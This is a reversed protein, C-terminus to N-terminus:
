ASWNPRRGLVCRCLLIWQPDRTIPRDLEFLNNTCVNRNNGGFWQGLRVVFVIWRVVLILSLDCLSALVCLIVPIPFEEEENDIASNEIRVAVQDGIIRVARSVSITAFAKVWTLFCM